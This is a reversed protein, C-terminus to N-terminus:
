NGGMGRVAAILERIAAVLEQNGGGGIGMTANAQEASVQEVSAGRAMSHDRGYREAYYDAKQQRRGQQYDERQQSRNAYYDERSIKPIEPKNPDQDVNDLSIGIDAGDSGSTEGFGPM